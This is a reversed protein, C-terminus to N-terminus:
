SCYYRFRSPRFCTSDLVGASRFLRPHSCQRGGRSVRRIVRRKLHTGGGGRLRQLFTTGYLGNVYFTIHLIGPSFWPFAQTIRSYVAVTEGRSNCNIRLTWLSIPLLWVYKKNAGISLVYYLELVQSQLTEVYWFSWLLNSNNTNKYHFGVLHV